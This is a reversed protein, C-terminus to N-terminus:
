PDRCAVSSVVTSELTILVSKALPKLVNKMLPFGVKLLSVLLRGLFGDLQIIKSIQTKSLNINNSSCNSFAKCFSAVQRDTLLLNIDDSM